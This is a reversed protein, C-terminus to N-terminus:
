WKVDPFGKKNGADELPAFQTSPTFSNMKAAVYEHCNYGCNCVHM